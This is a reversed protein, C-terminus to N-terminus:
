SILTNLYEVKNHASQCRPPTQGVAAGVQESVAVLSVVQPVRVTDYTGDSPLAPLAVSESGLCESHEASCLHQLPVHTRAVAGGVPVYIIM